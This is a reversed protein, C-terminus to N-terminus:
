KQMIQLEAVFGGMDLTERRTVGFGAARGANATREPFPSLWVLRGGRILTRHAHAIFADLLDAVTGDRRVRRGMPPNTIVLSAGEVQHTLADGEALFVNPLGAADLNSRAAELARPDLDCGHLSRYRGLLGREVLELGSGVFPDWVVDGPEAGAVRALAAAITPHSAAPVDMKRYAFRPDDFGRPFLVVERANAADDVLAEWLALSPDNVLGGREAASAAIRWVIARHHGRRAFALRFRPTGDTWASLAGLSDDSFLADVVRTEIPARGKPLDIRVGFDLATRAGLLRRADGGYHLLVTSPSRVETRGLGRLENQLVNSLGARCRVVFTMSKPLPRDLVISGRSERDRTRSLKLVARSALRDLEADDTAIGSLLALSRPGGIKGLAEAISRRHEPTATPWLAILRDEAGKAPAKGIAIIANRRTKADEDSTAALLADALDGDRTDAAVRGILKVLSARARSGRANLGTTAARAAPMGARALARIIPEARDRDAEALLDFLATFDGKAPTYGADLAKKELDTEM